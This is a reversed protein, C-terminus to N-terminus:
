TGVCGEAVVFVDACETARRHTHKVLTPPPLPLTNHAITCCTCLVLKYAACTNMPSAKRARHRHTSYPISLVTTVGNALPTRSSEWHPCCCCRPLYDAGQTSLRCESASERALDPHDQLTQHAAVPLTAPPSRAHAQHGHNARQVGRM